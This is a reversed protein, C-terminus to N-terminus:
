KQQGTESMFFNENARDKMYEGLDTWRGESVCNASGLPPM